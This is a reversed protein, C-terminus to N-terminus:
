MPFFEQAGDEWREVTGDTLKRYLYADRGQQKIERYVKRAEKGSSFTHTQEHSKVWWEKASM